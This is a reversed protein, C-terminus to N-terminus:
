ETRQVVRRASVVSFLGLLLWFLLNLGLGLWVAFDPHGSGDEQILEGFGPTTLREGGGAVMGGALVPLALLVLAGLRGLTPAGGPQRLLWLGAATAALAFLWLLQAGPDNPVRGPRIDPQALWPAMIFVLFGAAGWVLGQLVRPPDRLFLLQLVLSGAVGLGIHHLLLLDNEAVSLGNSPLVTARVVMLALTSLLAAAFAAAFIRFPM